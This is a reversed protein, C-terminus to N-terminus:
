SDLVSIGLGRFGSLVSAFITAGFVSEAAGHMTERSAQPNLAGAGLNTSGSVSVGSM